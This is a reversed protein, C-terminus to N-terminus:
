KKLEVDIVQKVWNGTEQMKSLRILYDQWLFGGFGDVWTKYNNVLIDFAQKHHICYKSESVSIRHCAACKQTTM